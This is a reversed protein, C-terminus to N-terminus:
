KKALVRTQFVVSAIMVSRGTGDRVEISLMRRESAPLEDRAIGGLTRAAEAKAAELGPLDLGIDDVQVNGNERIDFFYRM